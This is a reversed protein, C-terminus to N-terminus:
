YGMRFAMPNMNQCKLENQTTTTTKNRGKQETKDPLLAGTLKRTKADFTIRSQIMNRLKITEYNRLKWTAWDSYRCFVIHILKLCSNNEIRMLSQIVNKMYLHTHTNHISKQIRLVYLATNKIITNGHDSMSYLWVFPVWVLECECVCMLECVIFVCIARKLEITNLRMKLSFLCLRFLIPCGFCNIVVIIIVFMLHSMKSGEHMWKNMRSM